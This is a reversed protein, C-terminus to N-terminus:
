CAAVQVYFTVGVGHHVGTALLVTFALVQINLTVANGPPLEVPNVSRFYAVSAAALGAGFVAGLVSLLLSETLLQRVLRARGSGLAARVALERARDAARGLMLNAVNLCAILLVLTVAALLALLGTRLNRGALWTFESQLDYVVPVFNTVWSSAPVERVFQRHLVTLEAQATARTLGPTLRGFVGVVSDLPHLVYDSDPTILTWLSTQRPYFDFGKPMVGAVTCTKGDLSLTGGVVDHDAGLQSQWFSHALVVTCGNKLDEHQFTRGEAASVGLLSFIGETAPITLARLPKGHWALTQGARAWTLAELQEFSRSSKQWNQFERFSDFSESQGFRGPKAQWVVALRNPDRYPLPRLLVADVISFIATNAGIGLGLTLVVLATFAPKRALMRLAFRLDQCLTEVSNWGWMERSREQLLTVNGFRRLAAYRAEDPAMGSERNEREEMALHSRIEADIDDVPKSRRFLAALKALERHWRM